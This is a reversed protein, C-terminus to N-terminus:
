AKLEELVSLHWGPLQKGLGMIQCFREVAERWAKEPELRELIRPAADRHEILSGPAAIFWGRSLTRGVACTPPLGAEGFEEAKRKWRQDWTEHADFDIAQGWPSSPTKFLLGWHLQAGLPALAM